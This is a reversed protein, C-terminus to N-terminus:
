KALRIILMREKEDWEVPFSRTEEFPIEWYRLFARISLIIMRSGKRRQVKYTGSKEGNFFKLGIAKAARDYYLEAATSDGVYKEGCASSLVLTALKSIMAKPPGYSRRNERVFKVFNM